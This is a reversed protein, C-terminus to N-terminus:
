IVRAARKRPRVQPVKRHRTFHQATGEERDVIEVEEEVQHRLGARMDLPTIIGRPMAGPDFPVLRLTARTKSGRGPSSVPAATRRRLFTDVHLFRKANM